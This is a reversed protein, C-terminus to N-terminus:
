KTTANVIKMLLESASTLVPGGIPDQQIASFPGEGFYLGDSALFTLRVNGKVPAPRRPKDWPGIRAAAEAAARMLRARDNEMTAPTAEFIALKESHNIYRMRGDAFVALTDLGGDLPVEVIVGLVQGTPVKVNKSRLYNFALIRVRSEETEDKAIREVEDTRPTASLLITLAGSVPTSDRPRFLALDDCFLLNYLFNTAKEKYPQHMGPGVAQPSTVPIASPARPPPGETSACASVIAVLGIILGGTDFRGLRAM